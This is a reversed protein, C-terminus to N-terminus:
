LGLAERAAREAKADNYGLENKYIEIHKKLTESESVQPKTKAIAARAEGNKINLGQWGGAIARNLVMIPDICTDLSALEKEVSSVTAFRTSPKALRQARRDDWAEVFGAIAQLRMPIPVGESRDVVTTKKKPKDGGPPAPPTDGGKIGEKTCDKIGEKTRPGQDLSSDERSQPSDERPSTSNIDPAPFKSGSPRDIKQHDSWNNIQIYTAGNAFYRTVCVQKELESIWGSILGRADEDYPYLLSALM